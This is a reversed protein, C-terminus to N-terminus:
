AEKLNLLERLRERTSECCFAAEAAMANVGKFVEEGWGFTRELMEYERTMTTRFFPPDDTSITFRAGAKRLTDVPHSEWGKFVGLFVNSGPNIELTVGSEVIREVLAPDEACQVGHGLRSVPLSDLVDRVSEAHGWEGAHCTLRLGAEAAMEFAYSFDRAQRALEDGAMGFGTLFDGATEAACFAAMKAKEIGFHRVATVIVRLIIGLEREARAAGEHIAALYERWAFADGGGCFDPSVFAETYVVGHAASRELAAMTLEMYDEPTQLLSCAAEYVRLFRKFDPCDYEGRENFVAPLRAYKRDALARLFEPPMAGELHLHLEAKPFSRWDSM